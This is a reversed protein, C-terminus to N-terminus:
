KLNSLQIPNKRSRERKRNVETRQRDLEEIERKAQEVSQMYGLAKEVAEVQNKNSM